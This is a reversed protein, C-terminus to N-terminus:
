VTATENFNKKIKDKQNFFLGTSLYCLPLCVVVPLLEYFRLRLWSFIFFSFSCFKINLNIELASGYYNIYLESFVQDEDKIIGM